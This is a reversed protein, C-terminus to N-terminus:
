GKEGEKSGAKVAAEVQQLFQWPLMVFPTDQKTMKNAMDWLEAKQKLDGFIACEACWTAKAAAVEAALRMRDSVLWARNQCAEEDGIKYRKLESELGNIYAQKAALSKTNSM